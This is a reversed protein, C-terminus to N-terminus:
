HRSKKEAVTLNKDFVAKCAPSLDAKQRRMCATIGPINPIESSCLRFADPMCAARQEATYAFSTAAFSSMSIALALMFGTKRIISTKVTLNRSM